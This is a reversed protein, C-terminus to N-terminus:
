QRVLAFDLVKEKEEKFLSSKLLQSQAKYGPAQAIVNHEESWTVFQYTGTADTTGSKYPKPGYGDDSVTAGAIPQGTEADKVIGRVTLGPESSACNAALFVALWLIAPLVKTFIRATRKKLWM